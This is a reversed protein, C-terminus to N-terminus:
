THFHTILYFLSLEERTKVRAVILHVQSIGTGLQLFCPSGQFECLAVIVADHPDPVLVGASDTRCHNIGFKALAVACFCLNRRQFRLDGRCLVCQAIGGQLGREASRDNLLKNLIM